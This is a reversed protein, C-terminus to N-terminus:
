GAFFWGLGYILGLLLLALIVGYIIRLISFGSEATSWRSPETFIRGSLWEECAYCPLLLLVFVFWSRGSLLWLVVSMVLFALCAVGKLGTSLSNGGLLATRDENNRDDM